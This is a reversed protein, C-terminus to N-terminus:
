LTWLEGGRAQELLDRLPLHEPLALAPDRHIIAFADDRAEALAATDAMLSAIRLAPLGSQRVGDLEGPGRRMLDEEAIEFGDSTRTLVALRDLSEPSDSGSLLLCWPQHGARAVRGRLQHLQALGFREADEIVITTANPVNVGVEIVSTSVLVDVEGRRFHAMVAQRSEADLRGHVLDLRLDRLPGSALEDFTQEAAAMEQSPEIAPCVVYAQRGEAVRRRVFEWAHERRDPPLLRTHPSRRGPPLEDIVSVDFDGYVALALTRPIPTASMVLVNPRAGKASLRARQRVGFRHQEDIVVVALDAFRVGESFLAHTGVACRLTGDELGQLAAGRGETDLGGTLLVPEIGLPALMQALTEHHQEALVETPAMMAAQRGARAAVALALAAVLTKGSAVEGHILRHAPREAALDRLVEAMARSQAATPKFPLSGVLEADVGEARLAARKEPARAEARRRALALQLAFLEQYALRHRARRQRPLNAPFHLEGIAEALPMLERHERLCEPLPDAPPECRKLSQQVWGRLMRQSIGETGPYVPVICGTQPPGDAKIRECESVAIAVKGGQLRATGVVILEEGRQLQDARWPQHFFLLDAPEGGCEVPIIATAGRWPKTRRGPGAVTVRVVANQGHQLERPSLIHRRDEYRAPCHRLLDGITRVGLRELAEARAPGVGTLETVPDDWALPAPRHPAPTSESEPEPTDPAIAALLRLAREVLPRRREPALDAYGRCDRELRRLAEGARDPVDTGALQGVVHRILKEAGGPAATDDCGRRRELRLVHLCHRITTAAAQNM